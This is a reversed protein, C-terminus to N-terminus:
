ITVFTCLQQAELLIELPAKKEYVPTLSTLWDNTLAISPIIKLDFLLQLFAKAFCTIERVCIL